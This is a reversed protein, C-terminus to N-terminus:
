KDKKEEKEKVKEMTYSHSNSDKKGGFEKPRATKEPNESDVGYALMLKDGDFKIIGPAKFGKFTESTIELEITVPDAKEDLTYKFEFTADPTVMTIKDKTITVPEKITKIDSVTGNKSGETLTWKGILKKADFAVKEAKKDEVKTAAKPEDAQLVAFGVGFLVGLVLLKKLLTM